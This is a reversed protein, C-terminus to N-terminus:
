QLTGDSFSRFYNGGPFIIKKQFFPVPCQEYTRTFVTWGYAYASNMRVRLLTQVYVYVSNWVYVHVTWVHTHVSNMYQFTDRASQDSHVPAPDSVARSLRDGKYIYRYRYRYRDIDIHVLPIERRWRMMSGMRRTSASWV